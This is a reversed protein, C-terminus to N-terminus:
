ECSPDVVDIAGPTSAGVFLDAAAAQAPFLMAAGLAAAILVRAM